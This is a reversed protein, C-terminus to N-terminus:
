SISVRALVALSVLLGVIGIVWTQLKLQAEIGKNAENIKM